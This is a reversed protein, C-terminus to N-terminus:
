LNPNESEVVTLNDQTFGDERGNEPLPVMDAPQVSTVGDFIPICIFNVTRYGALTVEADYCLFPPPADGNRPSLSLGRPVTPLAVVETKGNRDSYLVGLANGRQPEGEAGKDRIIIRAGELPIAGSATSVRFILRGVGTASPDPLTPHNNM